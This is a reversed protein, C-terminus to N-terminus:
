RGIQTSNPNVPGTNTVWTSGANTSLDYRLNGSNGGFQSANNRHIFLVTNLDKSAAVPNNGNRILSFVNSASSILTSTGCQSNAQLCVIALAGSLAIRTYLNKM